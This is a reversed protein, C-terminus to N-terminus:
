VQSVLAAEISYGIFTKPLFVKHEQTDCQSLFQRELDCSCVSSSLSKDRCLPTRAASDTCVTFLICQVIFGFCGVGREPYWLSRTIEGYWLNYYVVLSLVGYAM